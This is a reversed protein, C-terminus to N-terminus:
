TTELKALWNVLQMMLILLMLFLVLVLAVPPLM